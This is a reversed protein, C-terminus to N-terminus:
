FEFIIQLVALVAPKGSTEWKSGRNLVVSSGPPVGHLAQLVVLVVVHGRRAWLSGANTCWLSHGCPDCPDVWDVRLIKPNGSHIGTGFILQINYYWNIMILWLIYYIVMTIKKITGHNYIIRHHNVLSWQLSDDLHHNIIMSSGCIDNVM